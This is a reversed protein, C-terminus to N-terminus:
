SKVGEGGSCSAEKTKRSCLYVKFAMGSFLWLYIVTTISVLQCDDMTGGNQVAVVEEKSVKDNSDSDSSEGYM